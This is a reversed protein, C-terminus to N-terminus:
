LTVSKLVVSKSMYRIHNICFYLIVHKDSKVVAVFNENIIWDM